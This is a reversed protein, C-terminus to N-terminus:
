DMLDFGTTSFGAAFFSIVFFRVIALFVGAFFVSVSVEEVFFRPLGADDSRVGLTTAFFRAFVTLSFHHTSM